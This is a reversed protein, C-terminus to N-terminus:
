AKKNRQQQQGPCYKCVESSVVGDRMPACNGHCNAWCKRAENRLFADGSGKGKKVKNGNQKADEIQSSGFEVWRLCWGNWMATWNESLTKLREHYNKFCDFEHKITNESMGKERAFSTEILSLEWFPNLESGSQTNSVNLGNQVHEFDNTKDTTPIQSRLARSTSTTNIIEQEQGLETGLITGSKIHHPGNGTPASGTAGQSITGSVTGSKSCGNECMQYKDWNTVTILNMGNVIKTDINECAKFIKLSRQVKMRALGTQESIHRVSALLQGPELTIEKKQAKIYHKFTKKQANLLIWLWLKIAEPNDWFAWDMISRHLKIYGNESM